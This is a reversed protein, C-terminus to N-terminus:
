VNIREKTKKKKAEDQMTLTNSNHSDTVNKYAQNAIKSILIDGNQIYNAINYKQEHIPTAPYYTDGTYISHFYESLGNELTYACKELITANQNSDPKKINFFKSSKILTPNLKNEQPNLYTNKDINFIDSFNYYINFYFNQSEKDYNGIIIGKKDNFIKNESHSTLLSFLPSKYDKNKRIQQLYYQQIGTFPIGLTSDFSYDPNGERKELLVSNGNFFSRSITESVKKIFLNETEESEIKKQGLSIGYHKIIPSKKLEQIAFENGPYDKLIEAINTELKKKKYNKILKHNKDLVNVTNNKNVSILLDFTVKNPNIIQNHKDQGM